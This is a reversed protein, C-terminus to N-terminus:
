LQKAQEAEEEGSEALKLKDMKKLAYIDIVEEAIDVSRAVIRSIADLIRTMATKSALEERYRRRIDEEVSRLKDVNKVAEAAMDKDVLIFSECVNRFADIAGRYLDVIFTPPTDLLLLSNSINVGHDGVREVSKLFMTMYIADYYRLGRKGMEYPDRLITILQRLALLYLKDVLNDRAIVAELIAKDTSGMIYSIIDEHMSVSLRIMRKMVGNLSSLNPDVVVQLVISSTDEDIVELGILKEKATNVAREVVERKVGKYVIKVTSAGAVYGGIIERVIDEESLSSDISVFHEVISSKSQKSPVYIRLSLDPLVEMVVSMKPELGIERAWSNPLSVIYTSKGIRQVRRRYMAM